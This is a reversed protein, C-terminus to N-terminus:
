YSPNLVYRPNKYRITAMSPLLYLRNHWANITATSRVRTNSNSWRLDITKKQQRVTISTKERRMGAALYQDAIVWRRLDYCYRHGM